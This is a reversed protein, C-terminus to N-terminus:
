MRGGALPLAETLALLWDDMVDPIPRFRIRVPLPKASPAGGPAKGHVVDRWETARVRMDADHLATMLDIDCEPPLLRFRQWVANLIASETTLAIRNGFEDIVAKWPSPLDRIFAEAADHLLGYARWEPRLTDAVLMSHHAVSYFFDVNGAWRCEHALHRALAAPDIMAPRPLLYDFAAGAATTLIASM